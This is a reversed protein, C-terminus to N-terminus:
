AEERRPDEVLEYISSDLLNEVVGHEELRRLRKGVYTNSVDRLDEAELRRSAYVPTVRGEALLDLLDEDVDWLRPTNTAM